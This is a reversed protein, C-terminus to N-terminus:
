GILLGAEESISIFPFFKKLCNPLVLSPQLSEFPPHADDGISNPMVVACPGRRLAQQLRCM